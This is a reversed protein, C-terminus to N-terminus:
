AKQQLHDHVYRVFTVKTDDPIAPEFYVALEAAGEARRTMKLGLRKGTHTKFDAAFKWLRDKEFAETHHLRVVLTAYIEDLPGSFRYTVLM